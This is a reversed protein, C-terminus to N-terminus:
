TSLKRPRSRALKSCLSRKLTWVTWISSRSSLSAIRLAPQMGLTLYVKERVPERVLEAETSGFPADIPETDCALFTAMVLLVIARVTTEEKM